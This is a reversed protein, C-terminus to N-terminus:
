IKRSKWEVINRSDGSFSLGVALVQRADLRYKDAYGKSDIQEIASDAPHNYKIEFIYIFDPMKLVIDSRGKATSEEAAVDAGFAVLLTYFLAHYYHENKDDELQYPVGAFFVKVADIFAPLNNTDRFDYYAELFASRAPNSPRSSTVHQFLCDAFGKRVESNPFDLTYIDRDKRYDKITLYGSQYLLPVPDDFSELPLDFATPALRIGEVDSLELPPMQSLMDILARSTGSAFWYNSLIGSDFASMLSFPNYIDTLGSSFHYGDYMQKLRSLQDDFSLGNREAQLLIDQRLTTTLEDQSIGCIAEYDPRMSINTLQNLKSFIGMQSFKSIGTFFVFALHDDLSKLPGFLNQFRRRAEISEKPENLHHLIFNDYEDVLVVAQRGTQSHAARIINTLRINTDAKSPILGYQQEYDSLVSDILADLQQITEIDGASFDFRIVPHPQWDWNTKSIYLAPQAVGEATVFADFLERKGDFLANITSILLSKGFRRPRSLFYSKGNKALRYILETKDVYLFGKTRIDEFSQIGVPYNRVM